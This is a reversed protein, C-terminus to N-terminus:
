KRCDSCIGVSTRSATARWTTGPSVAGVLAPAGAAQQDLEQRFRRLAQAQRVQRAAVAVGAVVVVRGVVRPGLRYRQEARDLGVLQKVRRDLRLPQKEPQEVLM